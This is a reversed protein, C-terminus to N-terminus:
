SASLSQYLYELTCIRVFHETDTVASMDFHRSMIETGGTLGLVQVGFPTAGPAGAKRLRRLRYMNRRLLAPRQYGVWSAARKRFPADAEFNHGYQSPHKALAPDARRILRSQFDGYNKHRIPTRLSLDVIRSEYFPLSSYGVRGNISNDRGFWSRCRLHPYIAEVQQRSLVRQERGFIDAVKGAVSAEYLRVDAPNRCMRRDFQSFFAAIVHDTAIPRDPLGFFNRLVEGAGGHVNLAGGAHRAARAERESEHRFLWIQSYGDYIHFNRRVMGAFEEPSTQLPLHKDLVELPLGEARAIDSAIRVDESGANGYVFLKPITGAHRFLALLLRTDYGGSLALTMNGGFIRILRRTHESLAHFVQEAMAEVPGDFVPPSVDPRTRTAFPAHSLHLTEGLDVKRVEQIPTGTGLTVGNFVYELVSAPDVSRRPLATAVALFSSGVIGLDSTQFIEYSSHVDRHITVEGREGALLAFQGLCRSLELALRGARRAEQLKRLADQGVTDGLILTGISALFTGDGTDILNVIGSGIKGYFDLAYSAGSITVPAGFGAQRFGTRSAELKKEADQCLHKNIYLFGGM